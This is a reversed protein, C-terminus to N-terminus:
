NKLLRSKTPFFSVLFLGTIFKFIQICGDSIKMEFHFAQMQQPAHQFLFIVQAFLGSPHNIKHEVADPRPPGAGHIKVFSSFIGTAIRRLILMRM